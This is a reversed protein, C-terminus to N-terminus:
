LGQLKLIRQSISISGLFNSNHENNNILRKAHSVVSNMYNSVVDTRMSRLKLKPYFDGYKPVTTLWEIQNSGDKLLLANRTFYIAIDFHSFEVGTLGIFQVKIGKLLCSVSMTPDTDFEDNSKHTVKADSFDFTSSFLYELLDIAHSANNHFGRQYSIVINTCEDDALVESIEGKLEIIGPLFRRFFNVMVKTKSSHYMNILNDLRILDSDVPKECIVLKPGNILMKYLYDYHTPTPTCIVVIDFNNFDDYKLQQLAPVRYRRSVNEALQHNTDYVVFNIEPDIHFAKAYTLIADSEFDYMAGINGCGIILAKYM